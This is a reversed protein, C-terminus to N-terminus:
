GCMLTARLMPKGSLIAFTGLPSRSRRTSSVARMSSISSRRLRLGPVSEPPAHIEKDDLDQSTQPHENHPAQYKPRKPGRKHAQAGKNKLRVKVGKPLTKKPRGVQGTKLLQHCIEFLINGYRREGDTLLTLDETQEIVQSLLTMAQEFLSRERQGCELAWIFRSAREMLVITWGESACAPKNEKVKTYLEDGEILQQLFDHCLAYLMLPEKLDAVRELWGYISNKAVKFTDRAANIGLGNNLADLVLIIYSLPTRLGALPTNKTESFYDGCEQCHYIHREEGSGVSYTTHIRLNESHCEPCRIKALNM